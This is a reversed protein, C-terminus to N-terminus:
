VKLKSSKVAKSLVKGFPEGSLANWSLDLYELSENATLGKLFNVIADDEYFTNHSLDLKRLTKNDVLVNEFAKATNLGLFNLSLNLDQCVDHILFSNM